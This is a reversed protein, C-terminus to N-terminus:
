ARADDGATMQEFRPASEARKKIGSADLTYELEDLFDAIEENEMGDLMHALRLVKRNCGYREVASKIESGVQGAIQTQDRRAKRMSSLLEKLKKAPIMVRTEDATVQETGDDDHGNKRAM